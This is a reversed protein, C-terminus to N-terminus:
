FELPPVLGDFFDVLQNRNKCAAIEIFDFGFDTPKHFILVFVRSFNYSFAQELHAPSNYDYLIMKERAKIRSVVSM